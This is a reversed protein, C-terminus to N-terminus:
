GRCYLSDRVQALSRCGQFFDSERNKAEELGRAVIDNKEMVVCDPHYYKDMSELIEGKLIMNNLDDLKEKLTM